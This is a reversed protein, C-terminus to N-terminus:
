IATFIFGQVGWANKVARRRALHTHASSMRQRVLCGTASKNHIITRSTIMHVRAFFPPTAKPSKSKQGWKWDLKRMLLHMLLEM